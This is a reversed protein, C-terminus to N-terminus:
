ASCNPLSGSTWGHRGSPRLRPRWWHRCRPIASRWRSSCGPALFILGGALLARVPHRYLDCCGQRGQIQAVGALCAGYVRWPRSVVAIDPGFRMALLVPVTGKLVDALLTAVAVGKRGTRLVNTAGINGSGIERVDGLGALKPLLLGFPISGCLYGAVFAAILYPLALSWSIPDIM